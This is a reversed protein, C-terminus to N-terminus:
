LSVCIVGERVELPDIVPLARSDEGFRGGLKPDSSAAEAAFLM